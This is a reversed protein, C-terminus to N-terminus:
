SVARASSCAAPERERERQTETHTHTRQNPKENEAEHGNEQPQRLSHESAARLLHVHADSNDQTHMCPPRCAAHVSDTSGMQEKKRGTKTTLAAVNERTQSNCKTLPRECKLPRRPIPRSPEAVVVGLPRTHTVQKNRM